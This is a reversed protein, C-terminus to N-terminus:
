GQVPRPLHEALQHIPTHILDKHVEGAVRLRAAQGLSSRLVGLTKPPAVLILRDFAGRAAAADIVAAVSRGFKEKELEHPDHKPELAHRAISATAFTRGPADSKLDRAHGHVDADYFERDLAPAFDSGGNWKLVRARMGDAILVWVQKRNDTM